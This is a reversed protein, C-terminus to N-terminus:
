ALRVRVSPAPGLTRGGATEVTDRHSKGLPDEGPWFRRATADSIVVVGDGAKAEGATFLRGRLVPIRLLPFYEPSVFNYGALVEAKAGSPIVALKM